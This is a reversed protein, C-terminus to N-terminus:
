VVKLIVRDAIVNYVVYDRTGKLMKNALDKYVRFPVQLKAERELFLPFNIDFCGSIYM